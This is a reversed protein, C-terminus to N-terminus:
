GSGQGTAEPPKSEKGTIKEVVIEVVAVGQVMRKSLPRLRAGPQYKETLETLITIKEEPDELIRARGELIVSRFLFNAECPSGSAPVYGLAEEVEFCVRSGFALHDMKEGEVASHFYIKGNHYLFNLPKIMPTGDRSITGLRGVQARNLIEEAHKRTKMEKEQRRVDTV